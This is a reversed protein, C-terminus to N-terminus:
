GGRIITAMGDNACFAGLGAFEDDLMRRQHAEAEFPRNSAILVAVRRDVDVETGHTLRRPALRKREHTHAALADIARALVEFVDYRVAECAADQVQLRARLVLTSEFQFIGVARRPLRAVGNPHSGSYLGRSGVFAACEM